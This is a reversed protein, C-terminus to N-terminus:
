VKDKILAELRDLRELLKSPKKPKPRNGSMGKLVESLEHHDKPAPSKGYIWPSKKAM